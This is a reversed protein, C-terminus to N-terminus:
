FATGLNRFGYVCITEGIEEEKKCRALYKVATRDPVRQVCRGTDSAYDSLGFSSCCWREGPDRKRGYRAIESAVRTVNIRFVCCTHSKSQVQSGSVLHVFVLRGHQCGSTLAAVRVSSSCEVRGADMFGPAFQVGLGHVRWACCVRSRVRDLYVNKLLLAYQVRGVGVCVWALGVYVRCIGFDGDNRGTYNGTYSM